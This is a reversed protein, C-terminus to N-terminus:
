SEMAKKPLLRQLVILGAIASLFSGIIIGLRYVSAYSEITNEFALSGIFLSMTFGVGCLLSVGYLTAWSIGRPLQALGLRVGLWCTAFIGLQKGVFLGLIIGISVSGFIHGSEVGDLPVGANAFAFIPMIGYAVTPKLDHILERLLSRREPYKSKLPISFALVVGVLAAHVGSQLVSLWLMIGVLVYPPIRQVQLYNMLFLIFTFGAAIAMSVLSLDASYFLAIIIIAGLDDFIALALLFIKLSNAVRNGFLTLLGLAFAIDTATPIAWGALTTPNHHNYFTYILAPVVMGGVAGLGPLAIKHLTSLEGELIDQKIEMGVLLFFVTMLGENIWLLIPKNIANAGVSIAIPTDLLNIYFGSLSSNVMIMAFLTALLLLAGGIKQQKHDGEILIAPLKNGM